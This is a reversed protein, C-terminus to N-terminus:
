GVDGLGLREGHIHLLRGKLLQSKHLTPDQKIWEVANKRALRLLDFDRPLRAVKFPAIGSQKAGFLEGPGRIELDREAIEFGDTTNAIAELRQIGEETTPSSILACIGPLKGRGVRGRLQHLQALGFRDAHEIVMMTANAVDVGVEVVTTAVLVDIVGDRFQSMTKERESSNMRGHVIGVNKEKFYNDQLFKAHSIAAKLGSETMEVLPVVVYGQQGKDVLERLYNYVKDSDEPRVIKTTIPSRGPPLSNITSVDLDGFVTLSLTRPIPTATMVLTHPISSEDDSKNRLLARQQVGFRHQEDTIAVAINSFVVDDTLLAHTGVVIDIEGKEIRNILKKRDASTLSSTLLAVEVKSGKLLNTITQFHQEALLETPAMMASQASCVVAMLMVHLAVVTKGSGVDGQLLRNMPTTTTIDEAIEKVVNQQSDTLTFPIRSAIRKQIDENWDLKTARMTDRRHHRKMMVGLQLLFLEDYAIRRRGTTADKEEEPRHCMDYAKSLNPMSLDNLVKTPFHDEIELLADDLVDTILKAIVTSSIRDNSRYVPRLNGEIIEKPDDEEVLEWRPNNMQLFNNRMSLSGHLRIKMDPHLSKAVWPQNFWNVLMRGTEDEVTIELKSKRGRRWGPKVVSIIAEVTVLETTKEKNGLLNEAEEITMGGHHTEYRTPLHKILDAVRYIGMDVLAEAHRYTVQPFDAVLLRLVKKESTEQM